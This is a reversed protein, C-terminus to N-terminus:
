LAVTTGIVMSYPLHVTGLTEWCPVKATASFGLTQLEYTPIEVSVTVIEPPSKKGKQGGLRSASLSAELKWFFAEKPSFNCKEKICAFYSLFFKHVLFVNVSLAWSM